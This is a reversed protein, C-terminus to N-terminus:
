RIEFFKTFNRYSYRPTEGGQPEQNWPYYDKLVGKFRANDKWAPEYLTASIGGIVSMLLQAIAFNCGGNLNYAKLPLRLMTHVDSFRLNEVSLILKSVRPPTNKDLSLSKYAM